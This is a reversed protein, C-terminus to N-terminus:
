GANKLSQFTLSCGSKWDYIRAPLPKFPVMDTIGDMQWINWSIIDAVERLEPVTPVQKWRYEMHDAFTCLLNCRSILVSDGQVEYGYTSQFARITWKLWEEKCNTNEGVVRLKRDLQGIRDKVPISEGTTTDYRSVLYPAEGCATELRMSEAYQQWATGKPFTIKEKNTIWRERNAKNFVDKYGFWAEDCLNNMENVIRASTM